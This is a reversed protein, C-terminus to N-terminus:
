EVVTLKPKKKSTESTKTELQRRLIEGFAGQLRQRIEAKIAEIEDKKKSAFQLIKAM